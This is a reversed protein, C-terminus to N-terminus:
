AYPSIPVWGRSSTATSTAGAGNATQLPVGATAMAELVSDSRLALTVEDPLMRQGATGPLVMGLVAGSTDLVPGGAESDGTDLDLRQMWTEGDVGELASITGFTTSAYSLAGGFPFGAVAVEGRIRGSGPALRAFALPALAQQPGCSRLAWRADDRFAVSAPYANDILIRDCTGTEGTVAETTTLVTGAADVFFGSRLLEPQRVEFGSVLDIDEAADEPVFAPDLTGPFYDITERIRPLIQAVDEDREPEWILTFGKVAGATVRAETHSRLTDSQGTLVFSDRGRERDGDLPVIELTQMIEYLGFLTARDGPQSILLITLGSDNIPTYRAFPFNYDEFAVMGMPLVVDIGAAADTVQAYGLRAIETEYEDLLQARQTTTLVGTPELGRAIQWDTM